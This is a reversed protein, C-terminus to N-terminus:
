QQSSRRQAPRNLLYPLHIQEMIWLANSYQFDYLAVNLSDLNTRLRASLHNNASFCHIPFLYRPM